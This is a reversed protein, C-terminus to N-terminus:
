GFKNDNGKGVGGPLEVFRVVRKRVLKCADVSYKMNQIALLVQDNWVVGDGGVVSVRHTKTIPMDMSRDVGEMWKHKLVASLPIRKSPDLQLMRRILKECDQFSFFLIFEHACKCGVISM